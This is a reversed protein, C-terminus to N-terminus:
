LVTCIHFDAGVIHLKEFLSTAFSICHIVNVLLMEHRVTLLSFGIDLM